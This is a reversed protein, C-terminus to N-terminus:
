PTTVPQVKLQSEDLRKLVSQLEELKVHLLPQDQERVRDMWKAAWGCANHARNLAEEGTQKNGQTFANEAVRALTFALDLETAIFRASLEKLASLGTFCSPTNAPEAVPERVHGSGGPRLCVRNIFRVVVPATNLTSQEKERSLSICM